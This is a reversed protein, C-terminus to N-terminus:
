NGYFHRVEMRIRNDVHTFDGQRIQTSSAAHEGEATIMNFGARQNVSEGDRALVFLHQM